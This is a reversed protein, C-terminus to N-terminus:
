FYFFSELYFVRRNRIVVNIVRVRSEEIIRLNLIRQELLIRITEPLLGRQLFFDFEGM